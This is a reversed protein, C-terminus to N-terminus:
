SDKRYKPELWVWDSNNHHFRQKQSFFKESQSLLRSQIQQVIQKQKLNQHSRLPKREEVLEFVKRITSCEEATLM